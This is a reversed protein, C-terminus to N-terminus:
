LLNIKRMTVIIRPGKINKLSEALQNGEYKSLNVVDRNEKQDNERVEDRKRSDKQM